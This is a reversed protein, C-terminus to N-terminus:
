APGQRTMGLALRYLDPVRYRWVEEETGEYIAVLGVERALILQEGLDRFESADVPSRGLTRLRAEFEALEAFEELLAPLAEESVKALSEILARPRLVTRDYPSHQHEEREWATAERFLQLLARPSHDGQGDALRNWVWNRTFTTKGGQMREGVLINWVRFVTEDSWDDVPGRIQPEMDEVLTKFDAHRLAQKLVTKSYDAQSRWKLQVSRGYLHSKNEFRLQRWIDERLLIKCRLRHLAAERDIVFTFLGEIARTRRAREEPRHGFGTDLGDFLVVIPGSLAADLQQLWDWTLLGVHPIDLMDQLCGVVQRETLSSPTTLPEIPTWLSADPRPPHAGHRAQSLCTALGTALMWYERWGTQTAQLHTEIAQFGDASLVWPYQPRFPAPSLVM